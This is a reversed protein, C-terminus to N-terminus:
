GDYETCLEAGTAEKWPAMERQIALKKKEKEKILQMDNVCMCVQVMVYFKVRM